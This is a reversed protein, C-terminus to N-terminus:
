EPTHSGRVFKGCLEWTCCPSESNGARSFITSQVKWAGHEQGLWLCIIDKSRIQYHLPVQTGGRSGGESILTMSLLNLALTLEIDPCKGLM